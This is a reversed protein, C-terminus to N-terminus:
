ANGIIHAVCEGLLAENARQRLPAHSIVSSPM